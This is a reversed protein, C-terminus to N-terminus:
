PQSGSEGGVEKENLLDRRITAHYDFLPNMRSLMITGIYHRYGDSKTPFPDPLMVNQDEFGVEKQLRIWLMKLLTEEDLSPAKSRVDKCMYSFEAETFTKANFPM